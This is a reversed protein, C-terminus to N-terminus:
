HYILIDSLIRVSPTYYQITLCRYHWVTYLLTSLSHNTLPLWPLWLTFFFLKSQKCHIHLSCYLIYVSFTVQIHCSYSIIASSMAAWKCTHMCVTTRSTRYGHSDRVDPICQKHIENIENHKTNLLHVYKNTHHNKLKQSPIRGINNVPIESHTERSVKGWVMCPSFIYGFM